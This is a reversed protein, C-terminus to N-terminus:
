FTWIDQKVYSPDSEIRIIGGSEINVWEDEPIEKSGFAASSYDLGSYVMGLDGVDEETLNATLNNLEVENNYNPIRLLTLEIIATSGVQMGVEKVRYLGSLWHQMGGFNISVTLTEALQYIRGNMNLTVKLETALLQSLYKSNILSNIRDVQSTVTGNFGIEKSGYTSILKGDPSYGGQLTPDIRTQIPVMSGLNVSLSLATNPDGPIGYTIDASSEASVEKLFFTAVTGVRWGYKVVLQYSSITTNSRFRSEALETSVASEKTQIEENFEAVRQNLYETRLKKSAESVFVDYIAEARMRVQDKFRDVNSAYLEEQSQEWSSVDKDIGNIIASTFIQNVFDEKSMFASNGSDPLVSYLLKELNEKELSAEMNVVVDKGKIYDFFTGVYTETATVLLDNVKIGEDSIIRVIEKRDLSVDGAAWEGDVDFQDIFDNKIQEVAEKEQLLKEANTEDYSDNANLKICMSELGEWGGGIGTRGSGPAPEGTSSKEGWLFESLSMGTVDIDIWRFDDNCKSISEDIDYGHQTVDYYNLIGEIIKSIKAKGRFRPIKDLRTNSFLSFKGTGEIKYSITNLEVTMDSKNAIGTFHYQPGNLGFFCEVEAFNGGPTTIRSLAEDLELSNWGRRQDPYITATVRWSLFDESNGASWIELLEFNPPKNSNLNTLTYGGITFICHVYQM